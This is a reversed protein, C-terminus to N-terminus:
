VHAILRMFPAINDWATMLESAIPNSHRSHVFSHLTTISGPEARSTGVLRDVNGEQSKDLQGTSKLHAAAGKAKEALTAQGRAAQITIQTRAIYDDLTLEIYTRFLVAVANEHKDVPLRKLESLIKALRVSDPSTTVAFSKPVLSKRVAVRGGPKPDAAPKAQPKPATDVDVQWPAAPKDGAPLSATPFQELYKKPRGEVEPDDCEM